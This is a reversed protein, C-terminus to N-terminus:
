LKALRMKNANRSHNPEEFLASTIGGPIQDIYIYTRIYGEIDCTM